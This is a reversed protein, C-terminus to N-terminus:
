SKPSLARALTTANHRMMAVYSSAPGDKESLADSYITGGIGAGTESAILELLRNDTIAEVFVADIGDDRIQTILTAVDSASAENETSMGVPAVFDMDYAKAFYGFADHATVVTRDDKPLSQMLAHIESDLAKLEEIYAAGNAQYVEANEEDASMLAATINGVYIMANEVSQWAHPDFAGHGHDDEDDSHGDEEEDHDDQDKLPVPVIGKTAVVLEGDFSSAEILRELWGEFELGNFIIVDAEALAKADQPTPQYVHADGDPGVITALSIQDEGVRATMDGLISFTAVVKLPESAQAIAPISLSLAAFATAVFKRLKM